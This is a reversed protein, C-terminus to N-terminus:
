TPSGRRLLESEVALFRRRPMALQDAALRAMMDEGLGSVEDEFDLRGRELEDALEAVTMERVPKDM